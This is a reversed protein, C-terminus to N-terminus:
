VPPPRPPWASLGLKAETALWAAEARDADTWRGPIAVATLGSKFIRPPAGPLAPDTLAWAMVAAGQGVPKFIMPALARTIAGLVPGLQNVNDTLTGGPDCGDFAVGAWPTTAAVRGFRQMALTMLVKANPSANKGFRGRHREPDVLMEVDARLLPNLRVNESLTALVRADPPLLGRTLLGHLLLFHGAYNSAFTYELGDGTLRYPLGFVGANLALRDIPQGNAALTELAARVSALDALDCALVSGRARAEDPLSAAALVARGKDVNRVALHVRAGRLLLVRALELGLGSSAGTVLATQGRLDVTATISEASEATPKAM